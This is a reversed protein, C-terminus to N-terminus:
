SVITVFKKGHARDRTRCAGPESLEVLDEAAQVPAVVHHEAGLLGVVGVREIRGGRRDGGVVVRRDEHARSTSGSCIRPRYGPKSTM